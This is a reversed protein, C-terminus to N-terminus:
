RAVTHSRLVAVHTWSDHTGRGCSKRPSELRAACRRALARVMRGPDAPQAPGYARLYRRALEALADDRDRKPAPPVWEDLLVFTAEGHRDPGYCVLGDLAARWIIHITAQGASPIGLGALREAIEGRTLCGATGLAALMALVARVGRATADDDLGLAARRTRNANVLGPRLLDLLWRVDEAAVLHLTGRFCWLRVVSRDQERARTVDGITLADSRTWIGLTAATDDQAQLAFVDRVVGDVGTSPRRSDLRQARVRLARLADATLVKPTPGDSM